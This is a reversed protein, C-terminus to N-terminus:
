TSCKSVGKQQVSKLPALLCGVDASLLNAFLLKLCIKDSCSKSM